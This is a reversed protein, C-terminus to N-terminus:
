GDGRKRWGGLFICNGSSKTQFMLLKLVSEQYCLSGAGLVFRFEEFFLVTSELSWMVVKGSLDYKGM